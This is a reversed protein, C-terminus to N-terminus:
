HMEAALEGPRVGSEPQWGGRLFLLGRSRLAGRELAAEEAGPAAGGLVPEGSVRATQTEM